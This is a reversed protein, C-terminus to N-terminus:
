LLIDCHRIHLIFCLAICDRKYKSILRVFILQLMAGVTLIHSQMIDVLYKVDFIM